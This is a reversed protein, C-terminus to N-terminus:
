LHRRVGPTPQPYEGAGTVEPRSVGTTESPFDPQSARLKQPFLLFFVSSCPMSRLFLQVGTTESPVPTFHGEQERLKQPLELGEPPLCEIFEGYNRLSCARINHPSSRPCRHVSGYNRLSCLVAKGYNRLLIGLSNGYNRLSIKPKHRRVCTPTVSKIIIM